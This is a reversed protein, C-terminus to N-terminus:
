RLQKSGTLGIIAGFGMRWTSSCSELLNKSADNTAGTVALGIVVLLSFATLGVAIVVVLTPSLGRRENAM